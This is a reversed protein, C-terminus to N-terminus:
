RGLLAIGKKQGNTESDVGTRVLIAAQYEEGGLLTRIRILEAHIDDLVDLKMLWPQLVKTVAQAVPDVLHDLNVLGM